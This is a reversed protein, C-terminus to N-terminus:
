SYTAIFIFLLVTLDTLGESGEKRHVFHVELDLNENGVTHESKSHMHFQLLCYKVGDM